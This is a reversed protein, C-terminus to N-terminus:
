FHPDALLIDNLHTWMPGFSVPHVPLDCTVRPVVIATINFKCNTGPSSITLHTLSQLSNRTLGAVGCITTTQHLRPFCLSKVLRESVFSASSASDPLVRVNVTSGDQAEVMIRCTMLLSNPALSAIANASIHPTKPNPNPTTTLGPSPTTSTHPNEIHLLTHHPKQCLKCHHLSKCQKIFHGPKLCNMCFGNMKLTQIKQEHPLLRFQQCAYLPHKETKCVVCNHSPGSANTAFSTVPKHSLSPKRNSSANSPTSGKRPVSLSESAQARLNIFELLKNYHPIDTSEQSHKQWEFMTSSDLKLELVSTVFPGPAECDMAKLARLHQQVTDHLKRLEKGSGEVLQPAELIMRVHTQHILRPKDYRAQLCEVAEAYYEGSRSLGEIASKASGGKLSQQLYVLKESDSLHTRDHVAVSFQEWFSRWNLINGDFKPVDLKPLKVGKGEPSAVHTESMGSASSLLKKICVSCDFVQKELSDQLAFLENGEDLEMHHLDDRTKVLDKNIDNAKEEYQRLVCTDSIAATKDGVISLIASLSKQLHALKRSTIRRSSDVTSPSSAAIVQKVRVGLEAVLDDHSDLVDQEKALSDDDDMLDILAHHHARFESDLDALKQSMRRALELMKPEGADGELDKLYKSLRTLSARAM